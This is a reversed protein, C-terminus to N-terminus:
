IWAHPILQAQDVAKM